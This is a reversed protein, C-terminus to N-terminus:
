RKIFLRFTFFLNMVCSRILPPFIVSQFLYTLESRRRINVRTDPADANVERAFVSIAFYNWYSPVVYGHHGKDSNSWMRSVLTGAFQKDVSSTSIKGPDAYADSFDKKKCATFGITVVAVTVLLIKNM